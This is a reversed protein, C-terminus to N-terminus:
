RRRARGSGRRASPARPRAARRPAARAPRLCSRCASSSRKRDRSAPSSGAAGRRRDLRERSPMTLLSSCSGVTRRSPRPRSPARRARRRRARASNSRSSTSPSPSARGVVLSFRHGAAPRSARCRARGSAPPARRDRQEAAVGLEHDHRGGTVLLAVHRDVRDAAGAHEHLLHLLGHEVAAGVDGHVRGLVQGDAVGAPRTSAATGSRPSGRSASTPQVSSSAASRRGRRCRSPAGGRGARRRQPGVQPKPSSRPLMSVRSSCPRRPKSATTTAAAASSRSPAAGVAIASRARGPPSAAAPRRLARERDLAAGVVGLRARGARRSRRRAACRPPARRARTGRRARRRTCGGTRRARSRRGAVLAITSSASSADSSPCMTSRAHPRPHRDRRARRSAAAGGARRARRGRTSSSSGDSVRAHGDVEDAGPGPSGPSSVTRPASSSAARRRRRRRGARRGPAARARAAPASRM